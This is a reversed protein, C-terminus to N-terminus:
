WSQVQVVRYGAAEAEQKFAKGEGRVWVGYGSINSCWPYDQRPEVTAKIAGRFRRAKDRERDMTQVDVDRISWMRSAIFKAATQRKV